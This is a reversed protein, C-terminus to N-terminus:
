NYGCTLLMIVNYNESVRWKVRGEELKRLNVVQPKVM